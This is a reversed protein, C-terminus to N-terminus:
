VGNTREQNLKDLDLLQTYAKWVKDSYAALDPKVKGDVLKFLMPFETVGQWSRYVHADEETMPYVKGDLMYCPNDNYSITDVITIM